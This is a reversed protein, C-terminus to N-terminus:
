VNYEKKYKKYYESSCYLKGDLYIVHIVEGWIIHVKRTLVDCAAYTPRYPLFAVEFVPIDEYAPYDKYRANRFKDVMLM